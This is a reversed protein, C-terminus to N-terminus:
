FNHLNKSYDEVNIIPWAMNGNIWIFYESGPLIKLHKIIQKNLLFNRLENSNPWQSVYDSGKRFCMSHGAPQTWYVADGTCLIKDALNVTYFFYNIKAWKDM